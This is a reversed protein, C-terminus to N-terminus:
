RVSTCAPISYVKKFLPKKVLGSRARSVRSVTAVFPQTLNRQHNAWKRCVRGSRAYDKKACYTEVVLLSSTPKVRDYSVCTGASRGSQVKRTCVDIVEDILEVTKGARCVAFPSVRLSGYEHSLRVSPAKVELSPNSHIEAWSSDATVPGQALATAPVLTILSALILRVMNKGGVSPQM